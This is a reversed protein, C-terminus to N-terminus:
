KSYSATRKYDSLIEPKKFFEQEGYNETAYVCCLLLRPEKKPSEGKHLGFTDAIIGTGASGYISFIADDGFRKRISSDAHRNLLFKEHFLQSFFSPKHSKKVYVHPGGNKSVDNLYFFFKIFGWADIDRHFYHAVKSTTESDVNAPFTWWLQTAINKANSGLYINAIKHLLPSNAIETFPEQNQYNFYKALLIEKNIKKECQERENFYFGIKPDGYAFCFNINAYDLIRKIYNKGMKLKLSFGSESVDNVIENVSNCGVLEFVQDKSSNIESFKEKYSFRNIILFLKKFIYVRSLLRMFLYNYAYNNLIKIKKYIVNM